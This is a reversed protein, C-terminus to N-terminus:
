SLYLSMRSMHGHSNYTQDQVSTHEKLRTFRYYFRSTQALLNIIDTFKRRVSGPLLVHMSTIAVVDDPSSPKRKESIREDFVYM